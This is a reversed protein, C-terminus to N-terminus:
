YYLLIQQLENFTLLVRLENGTIYIVHYAYHM